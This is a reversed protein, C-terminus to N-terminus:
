SVTGWVIGKGSSKGPSQTMREAKCPSVSQFTFGWFSNTRFQQWKTSTYLYTRSFLHSLSVQCDCLLHPQAPVVLICSNSFANHVASFYAAAFNLDKQSYMMSKLDSPLEIFREDQFLGLLSNLSYNQNPIVVHNELWISISKGRRTKVETLDKYSTHSRCNDFAPDKALIFQHLGRLKLLAISFQM